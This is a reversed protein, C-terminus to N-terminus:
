PAQTKWDLGIPNRHHGPPLRSAHRYIMTTNFDRHGYYNMVRDHSPKAPDVLALTITSARGDHPGIAFGCKGGASQVMRFIGSADLRTHELQGTEKNRTRRGTSMILPGETRGDLFEDTMEALRHPIDIDVWVGGKRKFRLMRGRPVQCFNEVSVGEIEECRLGPGFAYGTAIQSRISEERAAALIDNIEWPLLVIRQKRARSELKVAKIPNTGRLQHVISYAFASSLADYKAKLSPTGYPLSACETTCDGPHDDWHPSELYTFYDEVEEVGAQKLAEIGAYESYREMWGLFLDLYPMYKRRTEPSTLQNGWRRVFTELDMEVNRQRRARDAWPPTSTSVPM